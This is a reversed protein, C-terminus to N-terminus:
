NLATSIKNGLQARGAMGSGPQRIVFIGAGQRAEVLGDAALRAIAERVVTRSVGFTETLRTETPLKGGPKVAGTLVQERLASVVRESLKPKRGSRQPTAYHLAM